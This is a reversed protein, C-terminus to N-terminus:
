RHHFVANGSNGDYGNVATLGAYDYVAEDAKPAPLGHALNAEIKYRGINDSSMSMCLNNPNQPPFHSAPLKSKSTDLFPIVPM